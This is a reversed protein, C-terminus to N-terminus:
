RSTKELYDLVTKRYTKGIPIEKEGVSVSYATWSTIGDYPVIWSRHVRIFGYLALLEDLKKMTQRTILRANKTHILAYDKLGEVYQIDATNLKHTKKDSYILVTNGSPSGTSIKTKGDSDAHGRETHDPSVGDPKLRDHFRNVARILRVLSIPKVLYDVVDLEFADVAYKRYATTFIVRPPSALSRLMELGTLEPMQIDLFVLDINGQRLVRLADVADQCQGSIELEPIKGILNALADRALPEDDVILCRTKM